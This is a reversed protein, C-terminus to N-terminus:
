TWTKDQKKVDAKIRAKEMINKAKKLEEQMPSKNWRKVM